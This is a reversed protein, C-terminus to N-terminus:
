LEPLKHIMSVQVGHLITLVATASEPLFPVRSIRSASQLVTLVYDSVGFVLNATDGAPKEKGKRKFFPRKPPKQLAPQAVPETPPSVTSGSPGSTSGSLGQPALAAPNISLPDNPSQHHLSPDPRAFGNSPGSPRPPQGFVSPGPPSLTGSQPSEPRPQLPSGFFTGSNPSGGKRYHLNVQTGVANNFESNMTNFRSIAGFMRAEAAEVSIDTSHDQAAPAPGPAAIVVAPVPAPAAPVTPPASAPPPNVMMATPRGVQPRSPAPAHVLIYLRSSRFGPWGTRSFSLRM